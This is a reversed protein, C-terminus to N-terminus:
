TTRLAIVPDTRVARRAPLWSALLAVALLTLISATWALPDWQSVGFLVTGLVRVAVAAGAIGIALGVLSLVLGEKLVLHVVSSPSAGLALRVGFENARETVGHALLGYVGIGALTLAIVAFLGLLLTRFRPQTVSASLVDEMTRVNAVPQDPDVDRVVERMPGALQAPPITTKLVVTVNSYLRRLVPDPYQGYPVYMESKADADPAQRVDAVVGVVEMWPSTPDPETGLSIRQGVPDGWGFHQRAMSENVLVVRAAGERDQSTFGRGRRLPVGMASLYDPSIARYHAMTYREPGSPPRGQVNFHIAAGGGTMPLQTTTAVSSVGPLARARETVGEVAATRAQDSAYMTSSLPLEAALLHTADFGLSVQQLRAFSRILLAAGVTLIVTLAIEAIVLARRAQRQWPSAGIGARGGETLADRVDVRTSQAAPILGFLLGTGLALLFTFVAVRQDVGIADARPLTPGVMHVLVPVAFAAFLLGAAGGGISILLSEALLHRIIRARGAGLAIRIALDRRRALARSLLLGAVNICAILLVGSVAGLLLLLATRVGQVMLEQAPTATIAVRTNTDPYATELRAAIAALETQSAPVTVGPKLRAIPQVGPHWGRDPPQAALFPGLPIYVDAPQFLRFTAPLVGVISCPRGDLLVREGIVTALGGFRTQWLSYSLLAVPEGGAKDEEDTFTRGAVPNVGLMPLVNASIMKAVVRQPEDGGSLNATTNRFAGCADFSRAGTCVDAYNLPSLSLTPFTPTRETIAVIRSPDNFPLPRLMVADVVTFIASNAGVGLAITLVAVTTFGPQKKLARFAVRLDRMLAEIKRPPAYSM